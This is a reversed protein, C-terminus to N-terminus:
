WMLNVVFVWCTLERGKYIDEDSTLGISGKRVSNKKTFLRVSVYVEMSLGVVLKSLFSNEELSLSGFGNSNRVRSM